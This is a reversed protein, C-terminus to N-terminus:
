LFSVTALLTEMTEIIEPIIDSSQTTCVFDYTQEDRVIMAQYNIVSIGQVNVEYVFSIVAREGYQTLNPELIWKFSVSSTNMGEDIRQKMSALFGESSFLKATLGPESKKTLSMSYFSDVGSTLDYFSITEVSLVFSIEEVTFGTLEAIENIEDADYDHDTAIWHAPYEFSIGFEENQYLLNDAENAFSLAPLALLMAVLLSVWRKNRM